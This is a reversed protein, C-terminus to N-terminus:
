CFFRTLMSLFRTRSCFFRTLMLLFRTPSCFFRTRLYYFSTRKCFFRTHMSLFRTRSCFFRTLMSLFRTPSCFFRTRLYNVGKLKHMAYFGYKISLRKEIRWTASTCTLHVHRVRVHAVEVEEPAVVRRLQRQHRQLRALRQAQELAGGELQLRPLLALHQQEPLQEGAGGRQGGAGGEQVVLEGLQGHERALRELGVEVEVALHLVALEEGGVHEM